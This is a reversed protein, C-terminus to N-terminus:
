RGPRPRSRGPAHRRQSVQGASRAPEAGSKKADPEWPPRRWRATLFDLFASLRYPLPERPPRVAFLGTPEAEWAPLVRILAGGRRLDTLDWTERLSIGHGDLCWDRLVEGSDSRLGGAVTIAARQRGRRLTWVNQLSGPYALVLCAHRALDRLKAPKGHRALYERSAVLVRRNTALRRAILSSDPLPGIRIALDFGEDMLDVVRDTLHLEFDVRPHLRRFDTIAGVVYKRGFPAPATLRIAGELVGRSRGIVEAIQDLHSLAERAHTTVARGEETLRVRRTSREFLRAGLARELRAIQKSVAGPTVHLEHAAASFGGRDVARLFVALDDSRPVAM